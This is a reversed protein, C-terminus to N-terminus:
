KKRRNKKTNRKRRNKKTKRKRRNKKRRRTGGRGILLNFPNPPAEKQLEESLAADDLNEKKVSADLATELKKAFTNSDFFDAVKKFFNMKKTVAYYVCIPDINFLTQYKYLSSNKNLTHPFNEYIKNIHAIVKEDVELETTKKGNVAKNLTYSYDDEGKKEAGIVVHRQKRNINLYFQNSARGFADKYYNIHDYQQLYDSRGGRINSAYDGLLSKHELVSQHYVTANSNTKAVIRKVIEVDENGIGSLSYISNLNTPVIPTPSKNLVTVNGVSQLYKKLAVSNKNEDNYTGMAFYVYIQDYYYLAVLVAICDDSDNKGPDIILLCKGSRGETKKELTQNALILIQQFNTLYEQFNTLYENNDTEAAM